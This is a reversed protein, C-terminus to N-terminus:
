IEVNRMVEWQGYNLSDKWLKEIIIRAIFNYDRQDTRSVLMSKSKRFVSNAQMVKNKKINIRQM